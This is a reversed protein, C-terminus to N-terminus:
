TSLKYSLKPLIKPFNPFFNFTIVKDPLIKPYPSNNNPFHKFNQLFELFTIFNLCFLKKFTPFNKLFKSFIKFIYCIKTKHKKNAIKPIKKRM